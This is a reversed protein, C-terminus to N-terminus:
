KVHLFCKFINKLLFFNKKSIRLFFIAWSEKNGPLQAITSDVCSVSRALAHSVCPYSATEGRIQVNQLKKEGRPILEKLLKSLLCAFNKFLTVKYTSRTQKECYHRPESVSKDTLSSLQGSLSLKDKSSTGRVSEWEAGKRISIICQSLPM